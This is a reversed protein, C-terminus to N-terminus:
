NNFIYKANEWYEPIGNQKMYYWWEAGWFLVPGLNTSRAFYFNEKLQNSSFLETQEEFPVNILAQDDSPWPEAQLESIMTEKSFSNTMAKAIQSKIHYAVPPWPYYVSGFIPNWVARYLTTGFVPAIKMTSFWSSLEGSDTILIPRPDLERVVKIEELVRQYNAPPCIGFDVFPENEVQWYKINPYKKFTEVEIKVLEIVKQSFEEQTLTKTWNPQFCEPWRPQKFGVVLIVDSGSQMAQEMYEETESFDYEGPQMEVEDWYIPLRVLEPKLDTLIKQYAEKPNVMLERAYRASFTVGTKPNEEIETGLSLIWLGLFILAIGIIKGTLSFRNLKEHFAQPFKRMLLLSLVFLFVYQIGQISNIVAPNALSIAFTLMLQSAGGAAQGIFLMFGTKSWLNAPRHHPSNAFIQKRLFPIILVVLILPILVVRSYVFVSFFDSNEYALKLIFYSNAFFLSSVIEQALEERSFKGGLYPLILFILGALLILVAWTENPNTTGSLASMFLLIVPILTGIIPVVRAAEGSKLARFMFYAGLTWLITSISGYVFGSLTPLATIPALLLVALSFLSIYFVYLAPNPLKKVLLIKDILVSVANLLYATVAILLYNM